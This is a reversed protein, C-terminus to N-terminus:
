KLTAEQIYLTIRYQIVLKVLSAGGSMRAEASGVVLTAGCIVTGDVTAGPGPFNEM